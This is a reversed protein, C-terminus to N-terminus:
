GPPGASMVKRLVETGNSALELAGGIMSHTLKDSFNM